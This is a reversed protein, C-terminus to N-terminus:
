LEWYQKWFLLQYKFQYIVVTSVNEIVKQLDDIEQKAIELANATKDNELQLEMDKIKKKLQKCKNEEEKNKLNLVACTEELKKLHEDSLTQKEKISTETAM